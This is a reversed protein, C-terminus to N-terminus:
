PNAPITVTKVHGGNIIKIRYVSNENGHKELKVSLAKGGFREEAIKKAENASIIKENQAVWFRSPKAFGADIQFGAFFAFFVIIIPAKKM